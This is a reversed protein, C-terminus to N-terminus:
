TGSAWSSWSRVRSRRLNTTRQDARKPRRLFASLSKPDNGTSAALRYFLRAQIDEPEADAELATALASPDSTEFINDGLGLLAMREFGDPHAVAMRILLEAGASFGVANAPRPLTSFVDEVM